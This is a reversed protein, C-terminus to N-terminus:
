QQKEVKQYIYDEKNLSGAINKVKGIVNNYEDFVRPDKNTIVSSYINIKNKARMADTINVGFVFMFSESKSDYYWYQISKYAKDVSSLNIEISNTEDNYKFVDAVDKDIVTKTNSLYDDFNDKQVTKYKITETMKEKDYIVLMNGNYIYQDPYKINSYVPYNNFYNGYDIVNEYWEKKDFVDFGYGSYFNYINDQFYIYTNYNQYLSYDLLSTSNRYDFKLRPDYDELQNIYDYMYLNSCTKNGYSFYNLCFMYYYYEGNNIKTDDFKDFFTGSYRVQWEYIGSYQATEQAYINESGGYEEGRYDAIKQGNISWYLKDNADKLIKPPESESKYLGTKYINKSPNMRVFKLLRESEDKSADYLGDQFNYFLNIMKTSFCIEDENAYKIKNFELFSNLLKFEGTGRSNLSELKLNCGKENLENIKDKKVRVIFLPFYSSDERFDDTSSSIFRITCFELSNNYSVIDDVIFDENSKYYNSLVNSLKSSWNSFYINEDNTITEIEFTMDVYEKNDINKVSFVLDSSINIDDNYLPNNFYYDKYINNIYGEINSPFINSSVIADTKDEINKIINFEQYYVYTKQSIGYKEILWSKEVDKKNEKDHVWLEGDLFILKHSKQNGLYKFLGEINQIVINENDIEYTIKENIDQLFIRFRLENIFGDKNNLMLLTQMSGTVQDYDKYDAFNFSPAPNSIYNGMSINDFMRFNFCLSNGASFKNVDCLYHNDDQSIIATTKNENINKNENFINIHNDLLNDSVPLNTELYKNDTSLYLYLKRNEARRVSEDYSMLNYLRYKSFVSTFYNRLIYNKTGQYNAIIYNDYISYERHYIIINKEYRDDDYLTGIDQLQSIDNYRAVISVGKNSFRKVKEKTAIGDKEMLTLSSSSNDVKTINERPLDDKSYNVVGNYFGEYDVIFLFQKYKLSDGLIDKNEVSAFPNYLNNILSDYNSFLLAGNKLDSIEYVNNEEDFIIEKKSIIDDYDEVGLPNNHDIIDLINEIYMKKEGQRFFDKLYEYSEGWGTIFNSGINYALTCYKYKAMEEISLSNDIQTWDQSLMNRINETLILSTIDQKCLYVCERSIGNEIIRAKKYYCILVKNVKYIPFATELRMNELTMNFVGSTNRFGIKEVLRCTNDASLADVYNKRLSDCFDGSAMSGSVHKIDGVMKFPEEKLATLDIADIVNDRVVPICDKVNMLQTFLEKLTPNNLSFEPTYVNEFLEKLRPSLRYKGEFIWSDNGLLRRIKPNYMDLFMQLHEYINKRDKVKIPQTVSINPLIINELGKTESFLQQRYKYKKDEINILEESFTDVLLHKYFKLNVENGNFDYHITGRKEDFKYGMFDQDANWIYVDDYPLLGEIKDISSLMITGSDLTENWEDSFSAGQIVDYNKGNIRCKLNM